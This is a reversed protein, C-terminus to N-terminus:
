LWGRWRAVVLTIVAMLMMFGIVVFFLRPDEFIPVQFNMGMVGAVVVSPLLIVSAWTLVRMIDNTRQATRTMHVDFTGILMERVNNIADGARELRETVDGLAKTDREELHPLFDPRVLEAFVDRHAGLIRRAKAIRRRMRVLEQLLDDDRRLAADDLDDVKGELEAAAQFFSAVHWGLMSVLFQVPSLLGVERQDSIRQRHEDLSPMPKEHRTIVWGDGVLIQLAAPESDEGDALSLVVVEVADELVTADPLERKAQLAEAADAGLELANRVAALEDGSPLELDIWLLEDKALRRSGWNGLDVSEDSGDGRSLLAKISVSCAFAVATGGWCGPIPGQQM